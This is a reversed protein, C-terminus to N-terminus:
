LTTRKDLVHDIGGVCTGYKHLIFRIYIYIYLAICTYMSWPRKFSVNDYKLQCIVVGCVVIVDAWVKPLMTLMESGIHTHMSFNYM